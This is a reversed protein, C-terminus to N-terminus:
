AHGRQAVPLTRDMVRALRELLQRAEAQSLVLTTTGILTDIDWLDVPLRVEGTDPDNSLATGAAPSAHSPSDM